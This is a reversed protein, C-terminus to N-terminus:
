EEEWSSPLGNDLDDDNRTFSNNMLSNNSGYNSYLNEMEKKMRKLNYLNTKTGMTLTPVWPIILSREATPLTKGGIEFMQKGGLEGISSYLAVDNDDAGGFKNKFAIITGKIPGTEMGKKELLDIVDQIKKLKLSKEIELVRQEEKKAQQDITLEPTKQMEYIAKIASYQKPNAMMLAAFKKRLEENPDVGMPVGAQASMVVQQPAQGGGAEIYRNQSVSWIKAM